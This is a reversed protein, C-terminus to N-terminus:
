QLIAIGEKSFVRKEAGKRGQGVKNGNLYAIPQLRENRLFKVRANEVAPALGAPSFLESLVGLKTELLRITRSGEGYPIATTAFIFAPAKGRVPDGARGVGVLYNFTLLVATFIIQLKLSV